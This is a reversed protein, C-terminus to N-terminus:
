KQNKINFSLIRNQLYSKFFSIAVCLNKVEPRDSYELLAADYFAQIEETSLKDINKPIYENGGDDSDEDEFVLDLLYNFKEPFYSTM